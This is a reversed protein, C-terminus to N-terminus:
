AGFVLSLGGQGSHAIGAMSRCPYFYHEGGKLTFDDYSGESPEQEEVSAALSLAIRGRHFHHTSSPQFRCLRGGDEEM